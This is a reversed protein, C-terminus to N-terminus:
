HGHHAEEGQREEIMITSQEKIGHMNKKHEYPTVVSTNSIKLIIHYEMLRM